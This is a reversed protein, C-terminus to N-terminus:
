LIEGGSRPRIFLADASITDIWKGCPGTIQLSGKLYIKRGDIKVPCAHLRVPTTPPVSLKFSTNLYATFAPEGATPKCCDALIRDMLFTICGGFLKDQYYCIQQPPSLLLLSEVECGLPHSKFVPRYGKFLLRM